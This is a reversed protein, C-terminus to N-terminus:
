ATELKNKMALDKIERLMEAEEETLMIEERIRDLEIEFMADSLNEYSDKWVVQIIAPYDSLKTSNTKVKSSSTSGLSGWYSYEKAEFETKGQFEMTDLNYHYIYDGEIQSPKDKIKALNFKNIMKETSAYALNENDKVLYLPKSHRLIFLENDETLITFAFSGQLEGCAEKIAQPTIKNEGALKDILQVARYTDTKIKTQPLDFKSAIKKDNYIVGNHALAFKNSEAVFPHNNYNDQETGQTTARTHGLYFDANPDLDYWNFKTAKDNSKVVKFKKNEVTAVGTADTGRNEGTIGVKKLNMLSSLTTGFISCITIM